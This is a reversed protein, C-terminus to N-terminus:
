APPNFRACAHLITMGNFTPSKAILAALYQFTKAGEPETLFMNSLKQWDNAEILRFLLVLSTSTSKATSNSKM